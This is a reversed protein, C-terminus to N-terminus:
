NIYMMTTSWKNERSKSGEEQTSKDCESEEVKNDEIGIFINDSSDKTVEKIITEYYDTMSTKKYENKINKKKVRKKSEIYKDLEKM